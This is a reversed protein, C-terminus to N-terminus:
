QSFAHINNKQYHYTRNRNKIQKANQQPYFQKKTCLLTPPGPEGPFIHVEPQVDSIITKQCEPLNNANPFKICCCPTKAVVVAVAVLVDFCCNALTSFVRINKLNGNPHHKMYVRSKCYRKNEARNARAGQLNAYM